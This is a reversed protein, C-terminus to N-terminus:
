MKKEEFDKLQENFKLPNSKMLTRMYSNMIHKLENQTGNCVDCRMNDDLRIATRCCSNCVYPIGESWAQQNYCKICLENSKVIKYKHINPCNICNM